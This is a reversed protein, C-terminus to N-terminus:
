PLDARVKMLTNGLLNQGLWRSVDKARPDDAKLGIGYIKDYPSAEVLIDSTDLLKQKLDLNQSFKGTLGRHLVQEKNQDWVDDDFGEVCRGFDKHKKPDKTSMIKKEMDKDGFLRAKSVMIYQEVCCYDNGELTFPSTYWNGLWGNQENPRWFFIYSM